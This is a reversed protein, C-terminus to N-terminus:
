PDNFSYHVIYSRNVGEPSARDGLPEDPPPPPFEIPFRSLSRKAYMEPEPNVGIDIREFSESSDSTSNSTEVPIKVVGDPVNSSSDMWWPKEGSEIHRVNSTCRSYSQSDDVEDNYSNSNQTPTAAVPFVEVGEPVNEPNDNMWWPQEGSQQHRLRNRRENSRTSSCSSERKSVPSAAVSSQRKSEDSPANDNGDLWWAREGSEQRWVASRPPKKAEESIVSDNGDLWRTRDGSDHRSVTSSSQRKTEESLASDNSDLWWAKEGSEQRSITASQKRADESAGSDNSDLWWAREESEQRWVKYKFKGPFM